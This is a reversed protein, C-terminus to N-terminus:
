SEITIDLVKKDIVSKSNSLKESFEIVVQGTNTITMTKFAPPEARTVQNNM